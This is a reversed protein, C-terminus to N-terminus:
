KTLSKKVLRIAEKMRTHSASSLEDAAKKGKAVIKRYLAALDKKQEETRAKKDAAFEEALTERAEALHKKAGSVIKDAEKHAEEALAKAEHETNTIDTLYSM